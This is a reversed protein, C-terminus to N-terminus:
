QLEGVTSAGICGGMILLLGVAAVCFDFIGEAEPDKPGFKVVGLCLLGVLVSLISGFM